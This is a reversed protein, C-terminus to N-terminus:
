LKSDPVPILITVRTGGGPNDQIELKAAPGLTAAIRDRVNQLGVGMGSTETAAGFGMGTDSVAIRVVGSEQRATIAINGGEVKPEVGHKVSNEVLPQLLLPPLSLHELERPLDVSFSLRDGMRIKLITLYQTLLSTEALLTTNKARTQQLSARLLQNLAALMAKADKPSTDILSQVNALTNFLFHPEIQAQLLKLEATALQAKLANQASEAEAAEMERRLEGLRRRWGFYFVASLASSFLLSGLLFGPSWLARRWGEFGPLMSALNAGLLYVGFSLGVYGLYVTIGSQRNLWRLLPSGLSFVAFFVFGIVQSAVFNGWAIEDLYKWSRVPNVLLAIATLILGILANFIVTFVIDRTFSPKWRRFYPLILLPHFGESESQVRSLFAQELNTKTPTTMPHTYAMAHSHIVQWSM